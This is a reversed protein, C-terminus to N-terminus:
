GLKEKLLMNLYERFDSYDIGEYNLDDAISSITDMAISLQKEDISGEIRDIVKATLIENVEDTQSEETVTNEKLEKLKECKWTGDGNDSNVIYPISIYEEQRSTRSMGGSTRLFFILGPKISEPKGKQMEGNIKYESSPYGSRLIEEERIDKEEGTKEYSYNGITIKNEKLKSYPGLKNEVLFKKMNFNDAM